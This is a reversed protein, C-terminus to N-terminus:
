PARQQMQQMFQQVNPLMRLMQAANQISYGSPVEFANEPATANRDIRTIESVVTGRPDLVRMPAGITQIKDGLRRDAQQCPDTSTNFASLVAQAQGAMRQMMTFLEQMGAHELAEPSAFVTGCQTGQVTYSYRQTRYGAITPGGGEKNFTAQVGGAAGPADSKLTDSMDLAMQQEPMVVFLAQKATNMVVFSSQGPMEMRAAPGDRYIHSVGETHKVEVLTAAQATGLIAAAAALLLRYHMMAFFWDGFTL